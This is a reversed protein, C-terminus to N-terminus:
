SPTDKSRGRMLGRCQFFKPADGQPKVVDRASGRPPAEALRASVMELLPLKQADGCPVEYKKQAFCIVYISISLFIAVKLPCSM